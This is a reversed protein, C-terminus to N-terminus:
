HALTSIRLHAILPCNCVVTIQIEYMIYDRFQEPIKKNQSICIM